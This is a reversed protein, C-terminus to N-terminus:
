RFPSALLKPFRLPFAPHRNIELKENSQAIWRSLILFGPVIGPKPKEILDSDAMTQCETLILSKMAQHGSQVQVAGRHMQELGRGKHIPAPQGHAGQDFIELDFGGFDQHGMIFQIERRAHHTEFPSSPMSTM